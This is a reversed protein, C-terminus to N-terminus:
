KNLQEMKPYQGRLLESTNRVTTDKLAPKREKAARAVKLQVGRAEEQGYDRGVIVEHIKLDDGSGIEIAYVRSDVDVRLTDCCGCRYVSGGILNSLAEAVARQVKRAERYKMHQGKM